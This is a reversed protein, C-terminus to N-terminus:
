RYVLVQDTRRYLRERGNTLTVKVLPGQGVCDEVIGDPIRDGPLLMDANFYRLSM